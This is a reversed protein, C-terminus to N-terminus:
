EERGVLAEMLRRHDFRECALERSRRGFRCRLAPDAMTVMAEALGAV